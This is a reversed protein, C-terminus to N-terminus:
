SSLESSNGSSNRFGDRGIVESRKQNSRTRYLRMQDSTIVTKPPRNVPPNDANTAFIRQHSATM